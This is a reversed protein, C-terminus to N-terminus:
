DPAIPVNLISRAIFNFIGYKSRPHLFGIVVFLAPRVPVEIRTPIEIRVIMELYPGRARVVQPQPNAEGIAHADVQFARDNNCDLSFPPPFCRPYSTFVPRGPLNLWLLCLALYRFPTQCQSKMAVPLWYAQAAADGEGMRDPLLRASQRVSRRGPPLFPGAWRAPQTDARSTAPSAAIVFEARWEGRAIGGQKRRQQIKDCKPLFGSCADPRKALRLM